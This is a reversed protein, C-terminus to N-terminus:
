LLDTFQLVRSRVEDLAPWAEGPFALGATDALAREFVTGVSQSDTFAPSSAFGGEPRIETAAFNTWTASCAEEVVNAFADRDDLFDQVRKAVLLKHIDYLHRGFTSAPQFPPGDLIRQAVSHVHLLKEVLTRGPHLTAVHFATLDEFTQETIELGTSLLTRITREESPNTGGRTGMEILVHPALGGPVRSAPYPLRYTRHVGTEAASSPPLDIDFATAVRAAMAKMRTDVSRKGRGDTAVLVDVDESFRAIIGFAKSLSTGGKFIWEEDFSALARLAQTVWYDKEVIASTLNLRAAALDIADAFDEDDRFLTM